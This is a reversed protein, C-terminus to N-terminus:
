NKRTECLFSCVEKLAASLAELREREVAEDERLREAEEKIKDNEDELIYIDEGLKDITVRMAEIQADKTEAQLELDNL